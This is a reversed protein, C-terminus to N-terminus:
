HFVTGGNIDFIAGTAYSASPSCLYAICSAIEEPGAMRRLPFGSPDYGQGSTMGTDVPGPAVANVLVNHEAAKRSLWRMFSHLGGKTFAYHPGSRVGGMHGAISGCLVVRGKKREMMGPLFARTLNIPGKINVRLVRDLAEDWGPAMWDDFPCIAATDVLADIPGIERALKEVAARDSTDLQYIAAAKANKAKTQEIGVVDALIVEAGQATCIAATASGIGGAAGTIFIRM